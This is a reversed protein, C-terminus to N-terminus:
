RSCPQVGTTIFSLAIFGVRHCLGECVLLNSNPNAFALGELAVSVEHNLFARQDVRNAHPPLAVELTAFDESRPDPKGFGTLRITASRAVRGSAEQQVAVPDSSHSHRAM